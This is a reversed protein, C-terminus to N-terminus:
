SLLHKKMAEFFKDYVKEDTTEPMTLQINLNIVVGTKSSNIRKTFAPSTSNQPTDINITNNATTTPTAIGKSNNIENFEAYSAMNKFTNVTHQLALKGATTRMKFFDMLENKDLEHAKPYIAYLEKYSNQLAQGLVTKGNKTSRFKVWQETPTGNDEAFGIFKLIAIMRQESPKTFGISSFWKSDVKSPQGVNQIKELIKKISGTATSYPYNM